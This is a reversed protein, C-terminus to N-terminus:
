IDKSSDKPPNEKNCLFMLNSMVQELLTWNLHNKYTIIFKRGFPTDKSQAEQNCGGRRHIGPFVAVKNLWFVAVCSHSVLNQNTAQPCRAAQSSKAVVSFSFTKFHAQCPLCLLVPKLSRFVFMGEKTIKALQQQTRQWFTCCSWCCHAHKTM